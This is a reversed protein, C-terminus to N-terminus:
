LIDLSIYNARRNYIYGYLQGSIHESSRQLGAAVHKTQKIGTWLIQRRIRRFRMVHLSIYKILIQRNPLLKQAVHFALKCNDFLLLCSWLFTHTGKSKLQIYNLKQLRNTDNAWFQYKEGAAKYGPVTDFCLYFLSGPILFHIILSIIFSRPPVLLAHSTFSTCTVMLLLRDTWKNL